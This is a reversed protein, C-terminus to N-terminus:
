ASALTYACVVEAGERRCTEALCSLTEGTTCVDDVLAVRKGYIDRTFRFDEYTLDSRINSAARRPVKRTWLAYNFIEADWIECMGKALELSQNYGRDSGLHLPVPILYDAKCERFSEAMHRGLVSGLERMGKYKFAHIIERANGEHYPTASFVTLGNVNRTIVEGTFLTPIIRAPIEASLAEPQYDPNQEDYALVYACLVKAGARECKQALQLLSSKASCVDDVLAVRHGALNKSNSDSVRLDWVEALGEAIRRSDESGSHILIEADPLSFREAMKRGFPKYVSWYSSNKCSLIVNKTQPYLSASYVTLDEAYRTIPNELLLKGACEECLIRAPKGCVPCSAPFLYHLLIEGAQDINTKRRRYWRIVDTIANMTLM